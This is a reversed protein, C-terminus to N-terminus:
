IWVIVNVLHGGWNHLIRMWYIRKVDTIDRTFARIWLGTPMLFLPTWIGILGIVNHLWGAVKYSPPTYTPVSCVKIAIPCIITVAAATWLSMEHFTWFSGAM